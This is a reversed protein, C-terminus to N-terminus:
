CAGWRYGLVFAAGQILEKGCKFFVVIVVILGQAAALLGLISSNNVCRWSRQLFLTVSTRRGGCGAHPSVALVGRVRLHGSTEAIWCSGVEQSTIKRVSLVQLMNKLVGRGV